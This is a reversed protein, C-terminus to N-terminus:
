EAELAYRATQAAFALWEQDSLVARVAAAGILLPDNLDEGQVRYDPGAVILRRGNAPTIDERAVCADFARMAQERTAPEAFGMQGGDDCRRSRYVVFHVSLATRNPNSKLGLM